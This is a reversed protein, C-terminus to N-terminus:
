RGPREYLVPQPMNGLVWRGLAKFSGFHARLLALMVLCALVGLCARLGRLAATHAIEKESLPHVEAGEPEPNAQADPALACASDSESESVSPRVSRACSDGHVGAFLDYGIGIAEPRVHFKKHRCPRHPQWHSSPKLIGPNRLPEKELQSM